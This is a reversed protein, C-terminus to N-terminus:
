SRFKMKFLHWKRGYLFTLRPSWLLGVTVLYLAVVTMWSIIVAQVLTMIISISFLLLILPIKNVSGDSDAQHPKVGNFCFVSSHFNFILNSHSVSILDSLVWLALGLYDWETPWYPVLSTSWAKWLTVWYGHVSYIPFPFVSFLSVLWLTLGTGADKPTFSAPGATTFGFSMVSVFAMATSSQRVRLNWEPHYLSSLAM